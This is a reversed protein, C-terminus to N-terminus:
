CFARKESKVEMLREVNSFYVKRYRRFNFFHVAIPILLALLGWLFIPNAFIM